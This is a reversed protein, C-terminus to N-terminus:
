RPEFEHNVSHQAHQGESTISKPIHENMMVEDLLCNLLAITPGYVQLFSLFEWYFLCFLTGNTIFHFGSSVKQILLLVEM